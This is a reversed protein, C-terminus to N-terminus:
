RRAAEATGLIVAVYTGQKYILGLNMILILKFQTNSNLFKDNM